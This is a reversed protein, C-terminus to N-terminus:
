DFSYSGVEIAVLQDKDDYVMNLFSGESYPEDETGHGNEFDIHIMRLKTPDPAKVADILKPQVTAPGTYFASVAKDHGFRTKAKPQAENLFKLFDKASIAEIDDGAEVGPDKFVLKPLPGGAPLKALWAKVRDYDAGSIALNKKCAKGRSNLEHVNTLEFPTLVTKVDLEAHPEYWPKKEFQKWKKKKFVVGHAAYICNRAYDLTKCDTYGLDPTKMGACEKSYTEALKDFTTDVLFLCPEGCRAAKIKPSLPPTAAVAGSGSGSGASGSGAASVVASGSGAASGAASGSGASGAAAQPADGKGCAVLTAIVWIWRM